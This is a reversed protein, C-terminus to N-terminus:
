TAYYYFEMDEEADTQLTRKLLILKDLFASPSFNKFDQNGLSNRINELRLINPNIWKVLMFKSIIEQEAESLEINFTSSQDDRDLLDKTCYKFETLASKLYKLLQNQLDDEILEALEYDTINSLFKDYILEYTTNAM